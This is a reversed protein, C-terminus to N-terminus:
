QPGSNSYKVICCLFLAMLFDWQQNTLLSAEDVVQNRPSQIYM